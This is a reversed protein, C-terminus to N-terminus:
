CLKCGGSVPPRRPVCWLVTTYPKWTVCNVSDVHGRFTQRCRQSCRRAPHPAALPRPGGRRCACRAIDWLRVTHDLSSSALFDGGHHFSVSWVAQTHEVFTHSCAAAKLDWLKVTKDGSGTALM